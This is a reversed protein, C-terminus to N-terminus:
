RITEDLWPLGPRCTDAKITPLSPLRWTFKLSIISSPVIQSRTSLIYDKPILVLRFNLLLFCWTWNQYMTLIWSVTALIIPISWSLFYFAGNLLSLILLECLAYCLNAPLDILIHVSKPILLDFVDQTEQWTLTHFSTAM